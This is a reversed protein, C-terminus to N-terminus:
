TNNWSPKKQEDAHTNCKSLLGGQQDEVGTAIYIHTGDTGPLEFCAVGSQAM